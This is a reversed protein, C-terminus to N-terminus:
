AKGLYLEKFDTIKRRVSVVGEIGIEQHIYVNWFSVQMVVITGINFLTSCECSFFFSHEGKLHLIM